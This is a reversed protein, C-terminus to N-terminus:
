VHVALDIEAEAPAPQAPHLAYNVGADGNIFFPNLKIPQFPDGLEFASLIPAILAYYLPPQFREWVLEAEPDGPTLLHGHQALYRAYAFHGDEDYAEWVPVVLSYGLGLALRAALLLLLPGAILSSKPSTRLM